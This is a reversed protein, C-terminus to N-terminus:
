ATAQELDPRRRRRPQERPPTQKGKELWAATWDDRYLFQNGMRTYAPGTGNKRWNRVTRLAKGLLQAQETETRYADLLSNAAV